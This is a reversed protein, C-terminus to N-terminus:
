GSLTRSMQATWPELQDSDLVWLPLLRPTRGSGPKASVCLRQGHQGRLAVSLRKLPKPESSSIVSLFTGEFLGVAVGGLIYRAGFSRRTLKAALM